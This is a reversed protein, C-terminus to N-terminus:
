WMRQMKTLYRSRRYFDIQAVRIRFCPPQCVQFISHRIKINDDVILSLVNTPDQSNGLLSAMLRNINDICAPWNQALIPHSPARVMAKAKAKEFPSAKSWNNNPGPEGNWGACAYLWFNDLSIEGAWQLVAPVPEGDPNESDSEVLLRSRGILYWRVHNLLNPNALHFPSQALATAIDELDCDNTPFTLINTSQTTPPQAPDTPPTQNASSRARTTVRSSSSSANTSSCTTTM